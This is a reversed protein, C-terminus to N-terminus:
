LRAIAHAHGVHDLRESPSILGGDHGDALGRASASQSGQLLAV